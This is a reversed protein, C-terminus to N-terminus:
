PRSINEFKDFIFPEFSLTFRGPSVYFYVDTTSSISEVFKYIPYGIFGDSIVTAMGESSGRDSFALQLFNLKLNNSIKNSKSENEWYNFCKPALINFNNFFDLMFTISFVDAILFAAHVYLETM